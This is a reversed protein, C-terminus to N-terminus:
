KVPVLIVRDFWVAKVADDHAHGMWLRAYSGLEVPGVLFSRYGSAAESVKITREAIYKGSPGDHIRVSFAPADAQAGDAAEIRAVYYVKYHGPKFSAPLRGGHLEMAGRAGGPGAIMQIAVGDSAASDTVLRACDPERFIIARDDQVSLATKREDAPLDDSFLSRARRKPSEYLTEDPDIGVEAAFDAPKQGAERMLTM